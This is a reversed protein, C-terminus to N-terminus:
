IIHESQVVFGYYLMPCKINGIKLVIELMIDWSNKLEYCNFFNNSLILNSLEVILKNKLYYEDTKDLYYIQLIYWM